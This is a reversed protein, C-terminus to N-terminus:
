RKVSPEAVNEGVRSGVAGEESEVIGDNEDHLGAECEDGESVEDEIENQRLLDFVCLDGFESGVLHIVWSVPFLPILDM